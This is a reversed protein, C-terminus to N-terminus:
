RIREVHAACPVVVRRDDEANLETAGHLALLAGRCPLLEAAVTRGEGLGVHNVLKAPKHPAEPRYGPLDVGVRM